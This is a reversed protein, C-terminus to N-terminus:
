RPSISRSILSAPSSRSRVAARVCAGAAGLLGIGSLLMAAPLLKSSRPFDALVLAPNPASVPKPAPVAKPTPPTVVKAVPQDLTAPKAAVVVPAPAPESKASAVFTRPSAHPATAEAVSTNVLATVPAPSPAPPNVPAAAKTAMTQPEAMRPQAAGPVSASTQHTADAVGPHGVPTSKAEPMIPATVVPLAESEGPVASFTQTAVPAPDFDVTPAPGPLIRAGPPLEIVVPPAPMVTAATQAAAQAAAEALKAALDVPPPVPAAPRKIEPLQFVQGENLITLERWRRNEILFSVMFPQKAQRLRVGDAAFRKNVEADFPTGSLKEDGDTILVVLSNGELEQLTEIIPSYLTRKEHKTALIRRAAVEAFRGSEAPNWELIPFTTTDVRENFTWVEFQEEARIQGQFGGGVVERIWAATTPRKASMSFSTDVILLFRTSPPDEAGPSPGALLLAATFLLLLTKM